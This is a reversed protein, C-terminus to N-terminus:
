AYTRCNKCPCSIGHVCMQGNARIGTGRCSPCNVHLCDSKEVPQVVQPQKNLREFYESFDGVGIPPIGFSM